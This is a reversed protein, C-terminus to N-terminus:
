FISHQGPELYPKNGMFADIFPSIVPATAIPNAVNAWDKVANKAGKLDGTILAFAAIFPDSAARISPTGLMNGTLTKATTHDNMITSFVGMGGFAMHLYYKYQESKSMNAPNPPTFGKAIASISDSLTTLMVTALMMNLGYMMRAQSSDFDQMGGVWVRRMYQIPYSKFQMFMRMLDGYGTGSRMNFTSVMNIFATPNLTAFEHATDFMAYVKRYLDSKYSFLPTAKDTQNWLYRIEDDTMNKVNDTAFLRKETKSRLVDWEVPSINFRSLYSQQQNNLLAFSKTSAEGYGRMIPDMAGIKNGKDWAQLGLGHFMKNTFRTVATGQTGTMIHQAVAGNHANLSSSMMKAIKMRSETPMANFVHLMQNFMPQWFGMGARMSIGGVNALDPISKAVILGLRALASGSLITSSINAIDPNFAGKNVGLLNNFLGDDTLQRVSKLITNAGTPAVHRLENWMTLPSSGFIEALGIQNGSTNIDNQWASYLTGQGYEKNARGWSKWDKYKYFMHRTREVKELDRSVSARTFLVGNGEIINDYTNGIMENVIADDINGEFDMARTNTFTRKIDINSKHKTVWLEKGMKSMISQNYMSKFFRDENMESAAMADSKILMGNRFPVYDRLLNGMKKHMPNHSDMGDVIAFIEDDFEGESLIGLEEKIMQGLSNDDLLQKAANNATEINYDTNKSTKELLSRKTNGADLKTESTKFKEMNRAYRASDELMNELHMANIEKVAENRAFPVGDAILEQTRTNIKKLYSELEEGTFLNLAQRATDICELKNKKMM